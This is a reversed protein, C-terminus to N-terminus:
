FGFVTLIFVKRVVQLIVPLVLRWSKREALSAFLFLVLFALAMFGVMYGVILLITAVVFLGLGMGVNPPSSATFSFLALLALGVTVLIGLLSLFGKQLLRHLCSSM